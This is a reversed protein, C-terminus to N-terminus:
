LCGRMLRRFDTPCSLIGFQIKCLKANASESGMQWKNLEDICDSSTGRMQFLAFTTMNGFDCGGVDISFSKRGIENVGVKISCFIQSM